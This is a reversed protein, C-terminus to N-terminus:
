KLEEPIDVEDGVRGAVYCRMAAILPTPGQEEFISAGEVYTAIWVDAGADGAGPLHELSIKEREIIPGAWGWTTSPTYHAHAYGEDYDVYVAWDNAWGTMDTYRDLKECTAVAWDLAVGQLENTKM